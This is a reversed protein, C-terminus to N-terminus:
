SRMMSPADQRKYVDLHTYSVPARAVMVDGVTMDAIGIAGEMMRLTDPGIM